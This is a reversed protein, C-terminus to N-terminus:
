ILLSPSSHRMGTEGKGGEPTLALVTKSHAGEWSCPEGREGGRTAAIPTSPAGGARSSCSCAAAARERAHRTLQSTGQHRPTAGAGASSDRSPSKLSHKPVPPEQPHTHPPPFGTADMQCLSAAIPQLLPSTPILWSPATQPDPVWLAPAWGPPVFKSPGTSSPPQRLCHTAGKGAALFIGHLCDRAGWGEEKTRALAQAECPAWIPAARAPSETPLWPIPCRHSPLPLPLPCSQPCPGERGGLGRMQRFSPLLGGDEWRFFLSGREPMNPQGLSHPKCTGTCVRTRTQLQRPVGRRRQASRVRAAPRLRSACAPAWRM